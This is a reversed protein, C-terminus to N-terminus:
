FQYQVGCIYGLYWQTKVGESNTRDSFSWCPFLNEYHTADAQLYNISPGAFVILNPLVSFTPMVRLSSKNASKSHGPDIIKTEILETDIIFRNSINIHFGLGIEAVIASQTINYGVGLIGYTYRSGSRFAVTINQLEDYQIGINKKGKKIFNLIGIPYDSSDAINILGAFQVGDVRKAKNVVGAFQFGTVNEAFNGFGGMQFGKVNKAANFVGAIQVSKVDKSINAIGGIQTGSVNDSVNVAGAMQFGKVNETSNFLGAIQAGNVDKSINMVGGLQFGSTNGSINTIGALGFGKADGTIHNIIGSLQFGNANGYISSGIGYLGFGKEGGSVGYLASFSFRNTYQKASTWNTSLPYILGINVASQKDQEQSLASFSLLAFSLLLSQKLIFKM